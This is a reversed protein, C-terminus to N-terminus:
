PFAVHAGVFAADPTESQGTTWFTFSPNRWPGQPCSLTRSAVGFAPLRVPPSLRQQSRWHGQRVDRVVTVLESLECAIGAVEAFCIPWYGHLVPNATKETFSVVLSRPADATKLLQDALESESLHTHYQKKPFFQRLSDMIEISAAAALSRRPHARFRALADHMANQWTRINPDCPLTPAPTESGVPFAALPQLPSPELSAPEAPRSLRIM